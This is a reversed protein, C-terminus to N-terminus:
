CHEYKAMIELFLLYQIQNLLAPKPICLSLTEYSHRPTSQEGESALRTYCIQRLFSSDQPTNIILCNVAYSTSFFFVSNLPEAAPIEKKKKKKQYSILRSINARYVRGLFFRSSSSLSTATSFIWSTDVLCISILSTLNFFFSAPLDCKMRKTNLTPMVIPNAGRM